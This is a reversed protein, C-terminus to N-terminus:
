TKLYTENGQDYFYEYNIGCLWERCASKQVELSAVFPNRNYAM